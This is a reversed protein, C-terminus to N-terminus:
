MSWFKWHGGPEATANRKKTKERLRDEGPECHESGIVRLEIGQALEWACLLKRASTGCVDAEGGNKRCGGFRAMTRLYLRSWDAWVTKTRARVGRVSVRPVHVRRLAVICRAGLPFSGELFGPATPTVRAGVVAGGIRYRRVRRWTRLRMVSGCQGLDTGWNLEGLGQGM